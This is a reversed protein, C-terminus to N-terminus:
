CSETTDPLSKNVMNSAVGPGDGGGGGIPPGDGPKDVPGVALAELGLKRALAGLTNHTRVIHARAEALATIAAATGEFARQGTVASLWAESRAVPLAAALTASEVLAQDIASEAAYLRAALAEGVAYRSM